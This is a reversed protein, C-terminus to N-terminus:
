KKDRLVQWKNYALFTENAVEKKTADSNVSTTENSASAFRGNSESEAFNM